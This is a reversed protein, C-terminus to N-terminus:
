LVAFGSIEIEKGNYKVNWVWVATPLLRTMEELIVLKSIEALKIKNFELIEKNVAEKQKQLKEVAEVEPRRKKVESNVEKLGKDFRIFVGLGWTFCLVVTLFALTIFVPKGIEKWKKRM